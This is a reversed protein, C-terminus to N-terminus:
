GGLATLAATTPETARTTHVKNHVHVKLQVCHVQHCTVCLSCGPAQQVHDEGADSVRALADAATGATIRNAQLAVLPHLWEVCVRADLACLSLKDHPFRFRAQTVQPCRKSPPKTTETWRTSMTQRRRSWNSSPKSQRARLSSRSRCRRRVLEEATPAQELQMPCSSLFL